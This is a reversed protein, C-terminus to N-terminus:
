SKTLGRLLDFYFLKLINLFNSSIFAKEAFILISQRLRWVCFTGQM